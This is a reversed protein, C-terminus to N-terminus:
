HAVSKTESSTKPNDQKSETKEEIWAAMIRRWQDRIAAFGRYAGSTLVTDSRNPNQSSPYSCKDTKLTKCATKPESRIKKQPKATTSSKQKTSIHAEIFSLLIIVVSPAM